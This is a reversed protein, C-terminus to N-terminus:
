KCVILQVIMIFNIMMIILLYFFAVLNIKIFNFVLEQV